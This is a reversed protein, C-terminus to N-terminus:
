DINTDVHEILVPALEDVGVYPTTVIGFVQGSGGFAVAMAIVMLSDKM